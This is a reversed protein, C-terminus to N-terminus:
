NVMKDLFELKYKDEIKKIDESFLHIDKTMQAYITSPLPCIKIVSNNEEVTIIFQGDISFKGPIPNQNKTEWNIIINGELDWLKYFGDEDTTLIFEDDPSFEVAILNAKHGKFEQLLNGQTDSLKLSKDKAWTLLHTTKHNLKVGLIRESHPNGKQDWIKM